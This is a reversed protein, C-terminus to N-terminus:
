RPGGGTGDAELATREDAEHVARERDTGPEAREHTADPTAGGDADDLTIRYTRPSVDSWVELDGADVLASLRPTVLQVPVGLEEAVHRAKVYPGIRERRARLVERIAGLTAEPRDGDSM